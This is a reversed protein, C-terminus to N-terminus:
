SSGLCAAIDTDSEDDRSERAQGLRAEAITVYPDHIEMGIFSVGERQCAIGTSGSGMFPDLVTGGPPTILRVLWQMVDVPKVTPHHNKVPENYGVVEREHDSGDPCTTVARGGQLNLGCKACRYIPAAGRRGAGARPNLAGATDPDRGVAEVSTKSTLSECGADRESRSAKSCYFFRSAGGSDGYFQGPVRGSQPCYIGHQGMPQSPETGKVPASAGTPGSQADLLAAADEDLLVNAPWRGKQEPRDFTVRELGRGADPEAGIAAIEKSTCAGQPTASAKDAESQYEIRTADINLGGTGYRLVNQAVTGALPKRALIIPEYAPKLATGWGDWPKAAETLDRVVVVGSEAMFQGPGAGYGQGKDASTRKGETAQTRFKGANPSSPKAGGQPEGREAGDIAKSINLSKPFGTGFLWQLTDRIEFGADELACALRHATRSGGFVLLHAGPKLVRYVDKAWITHWEQQARMEHLVDGIVLRDWAKGMFELGYPSDTVVADISDAPMARMALRCDGHILRTFTSRTVFRLM